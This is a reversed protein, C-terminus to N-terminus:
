EMLLAKLKVFALAAMIADNLADHAHRQPLKLDEMLTALRLDISAGHQYPPLTRQKWDYYLASVEIKPQPLRVGLMPFIARNILAVDFELYYGVMPRSGIFRMLQHMADDIDLGGAVDRERLGHVKVSEASITKSPKVLVSFRESTMVRNGVIRVAGISIIQDRSVNLGTTECDVSVWENEPPRDYLFRFRPDGLHYLMWERKLHQWPNLASHAPLAKSSRQSM